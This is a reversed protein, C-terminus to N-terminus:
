LQKVYMYTHVSLDVKETLTDEIKIAGLLLHLNFYWTDEDSAM